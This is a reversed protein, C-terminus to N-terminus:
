NKINYINGSDSYGSESESENIIFPGIITEKNQEKDDNNNIENNNQKEDNSIQPNVLPDSIQTEKQEEKETKDKYSTNWM